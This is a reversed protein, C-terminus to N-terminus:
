TSKPYYKEFVEENLKKFKKSEDINKFINDNEKITHLSPSVIVINDFM